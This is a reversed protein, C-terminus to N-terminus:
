FSDRNYALFTSTDICKEYKKQEIKILKGCTSDTGRPAYQTIFFRFFSSKLGFSFHFKAGTSKM